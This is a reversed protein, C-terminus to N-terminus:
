ILNFYKKIEDEIYDLQEKLIKTTLSGISDKFLYKVIKERELFLKAVPSDLEVPLKSYLIRKLRTYEESVAKM